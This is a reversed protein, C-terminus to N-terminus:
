LEDLWPPENEWPLPLVWNDDFHRRLFIMLVSVCPYYFADSLPVKRKGYKRDFVTIIYVIISHKFIELLIQTM